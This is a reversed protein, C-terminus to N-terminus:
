RNTIRVRFSATEGANLADGAVDVDVIELDVDTTPYKELAKLMDDFFAVGRLM